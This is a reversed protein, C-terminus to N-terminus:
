RLCADHFTTTGEQPIRQRIVFPEGAAVRAEAEALPLDRCPDSARDFEGSDKPPEGDSKPLLLLVGGGKKCLLKAYKGFLTGGSRSSIRVWPVASM